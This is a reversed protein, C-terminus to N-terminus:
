QNPSGARRSSGKAYAGAAMRSVGTVITLRGSGSLSITPRSGPEPPGPKNPDPLYIRYERTGPVEDWALTVQDRGTQAAFIRHARKRTRDKTESQAALNGGVAILLMSFILIKKIRLAMAYTKM